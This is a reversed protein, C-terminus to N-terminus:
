EEERVEDMRKGFGFLGRKKKKETALLEASGPGRERDDRRRERNTDRERARRVEKARWGINSASDDPALSIVDSFGDDDLGAPTPGRSVGEGVGIGEFGPDAGPTGTWARGMAAAAEERRMRAQMALGAGRRQLALRVNQAQLHLAQVADEIADMGLFIEREVEALVALETDEDLQVPAGALFAGNITTSTAPTTTRTPVTTGLPSFPTTTRSFTFATPGRSLARPQTSTPVSTFPSTGTDEAGSWLFGDFRGSILIDWEPASIAAMTALANHLSPNKLLYMATEPHRPPKSLRYLRILASSVKSMLDPQAAFPQAPTASRSTSSAGSDRVLAAFTSKELRELYTLMAFTLTEDDVENPPEAQEEPQSALWKQVSHKTKQSQRIYHDRYEDPIDIDLEQMPKVPKQANFLDVGPTAAIPTFPPWQPLDRRGSVLELVEGWSVGTEEAHVGQSQHSESCMICSCVESSINRAFVHELRDLLRRAVSKYGTAVAVSGDKAMVKDLDDLMTTYPAFLESMAAAPPLGLQPSSYQQYANIQNPMAALSFCRPLLHPLGGNQLLYDVRPVEALELEPPPPPSTFPLFPMGNEAGRLQDDSMFVEFQQDAKGGAYGNRFAQDQVNPTHPSSGSDSHSSPGDQPVLLLPRLNSNRAAAITTDSDTRSRHRIPTARRQSAGPSQRAPSEQRRVRDTRIPAPSVKPSSTEKKKTPSKKIDIKIDAKSRGEEAQRLNISSSSPIWQNTRDPLDEFSRRYSEPRPTPTVTYRKPAGERSGDSSREATLPPSPPGAYISSRHKKPRPSTAKAKSSADRSYDIPSPSRVTMRPPFISEKTASERSHAKSFSPYPRSERKELGPSSVVRRSTDSTSM